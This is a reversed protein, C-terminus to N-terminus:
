NASMIAYIILATIVGSLISLLPKSFTEAVWKWTVLASNNKPNSGPSIELKPPTRPLNRLEDVQRDLRNFHQAGATMRADIGGKWEATERVYENFATTLTTVGASAQRSFRYTERVFNALWPDVSEPPHNLDHPTDAM